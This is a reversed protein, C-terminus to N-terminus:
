ASSRGLWTRLKAGTKLFVKLAPLPLARVHQYWAGGAEFFSLMSQLRKKVVDNQRGREKASLEVCERLVALSPDLERRKREDLVIRFLEWVDQVSTFHDRRDGRIREIRIIGWSQLEKISMSVNSRAVMLTEAITEAPLPDASLYLLAHIQAVSRNVGWKPGMEGWHDIFREAAPSLKM